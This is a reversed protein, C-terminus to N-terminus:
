DALMHNIKERLDILYKNDSNFRDFRLEELGLAIIVARRAAEPSLQQQMKEQLAELARMDQLAERFIELRMSPLAFGDKSPYVVYPDGGPVWGGATSTAYPDVAELSMHSNYFNYGWQLFGGINYKFLQAGLMRNRGSPYALFRNSTTIQGCCYYGWLPSVKEDIFNHIHDVAVVPCSILGEKYFAIDSLADFIRESPVYKRLFEACIRYDEMMDANPEDSVHFYSREYVGLETLKSILQPLLQSLFGLYESGHGDTEWGFIRKYENNEYAMVKPAFKCGWQTFLHSIEYYEVGARKCMEVWKELKEFGFTYSSGNKYVDVLQITRREFGIGTDLPPTFVPTLLMNIGYKVATRAFNETIRWYEPTDFEVNYYNCICDTHFWNTVPISQAPLYANLVELTFESSYPKDANVNVKIVYKGPTIDGDSADVTIFVSRWSKSYAWHIPPLNRLIDPFLGPEPHDCQSLTAEYMPVDCPVYDVARVTTYPKLEDPVDLTINVGGQFASTFKFATQFSYAENRLMCGNNLIDKLDLDRDPYVKALSSLTRVQLM